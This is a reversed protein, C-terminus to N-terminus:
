FEADWDVVITQNALDISKIHREMVFPILRKKDGTVILVDNAGTAMLQSVTGLEIGELNVVKLGELDSWYFENEPLDPLISRPVFIESGTLNAAIEPTDINKFKAILSKHQKKTKELEAEIVQGNKRLQWPSYRFLNTIPDTYSRVKLWGQVGFSAEIKGVTIWSNSASM